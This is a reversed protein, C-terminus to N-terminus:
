GQTRNSSIVLDPDAWFGILDTFFILNDMYNQVYGMIQTNQYGIDM